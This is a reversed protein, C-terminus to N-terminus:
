GAGLRLHSDMGPDVTFVIDGGLIEGDDDLDLEVPACGEFAAAARAATFPGAPLDIVFEGTADARVVVTAQSEDARVATVGVETGEIIKRDNVDIIRGHLQETM